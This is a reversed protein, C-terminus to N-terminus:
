AAAHRDLECRIAEEIEAPTTEFDDALDQLTDGAKFRDALVGTPVGRGALVPRGFSVLPDVVVRAADGPYGPRTILYLKIPVGHPDREIRKLHARILEAMEIQGADSVNVLQNLHEVFLNIGNTQFQIDILPRDTKFRRQVFDLSRRVRAPTINHFRRISALVHAEVLNLFSLGEGPRGDKTFLPRLPARQKDASPYTRGLCWVRLTSAPINLYHAAEAFTYAPTRRVKDVSLM